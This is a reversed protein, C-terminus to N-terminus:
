TNLEKFVPAISVDKSARVSRVYCPSYMDASSFSRNFQISMKGEEAVEWCATLMARLQVTVVLTEATAKTGGM